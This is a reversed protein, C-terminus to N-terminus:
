DYRQYRVFRIDELIVPVNGDLEHGKYLKTGSRNEIPISSYFDKLEDLFVILIANARGKGGRRVDESAKRQLDINSYRNSNDIMMNIIEQNKMIADFIYYTRVTPRGKANVNNTNSLVDEVIMGKSQLYYDDPTISINLSDEFEETLERVPSPDLIGKEKDILHEKCVEKVINWYEPNIQIRFDGQERSRESDYHFEGILKTLDQPKLLRVGGGFPKAKVVLLSKNEDTRLTATRELALMTKGKVPNNFLVSVLVGISVRLNLEETPGVGPAQQKLKM